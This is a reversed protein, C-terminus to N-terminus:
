RRQKATEGGVAGFQFDTAVIIHFGFLVVVIQEILNTRSKTAVNHSGDHVGFVTRLHSCHAGAHHLFGDVFTLGLAFHNVGVHCFIHGGGVEHHLYDVAVHFCGLVVKFTSGNHHCTAVTHTALFTEVLEKDESFFEVAFHASRASCHIGAPHIGVTLHTLGTNGNVWLHIDGATNGTLNLVNGSHM